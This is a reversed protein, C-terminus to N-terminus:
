PSGHAAAPSLLAQTMGMRDGWWSPSWRCSSNRAAEAMGGLGAGAGHSSRAAPLLPVVYSTGIALWWRLTRRPCPRGRPSPAPQVGPGWGRHPRDRGASSEGTTIWIEVRWVRPKGARTTVPACRPTLASNRAVPPCAPPPCGEELVRVSRDAKAGGRAGLRRPYRPSPAEERPVSPGGWSQGQM